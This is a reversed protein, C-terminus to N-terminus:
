SKLKGRLRGLLEPDAGLEELCDVDSKELNAEELLDPRKELTRKLSQQRRWAAINAHHGSLLIEPVSWDRYNEPRTYQPYELLGDTFSEEQASEAKGLVGAQLRAVADLLVLAPLEGGTLVYDGISVERDVLHERVREDLGEYHGCIIVLSEQAALDEVMRQDLRKGQPTMLVVEAQRDGRVVGVAEDLPEVKMVMGAGGGYPADDATRHRDHTFDRLDIIRVDLAQSERARRIISHSIAQELMEPFLTIIDIRM